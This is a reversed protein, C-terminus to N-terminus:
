INFRVVPLPERLRVDSESIDLVAVYCNAPNALYRFADDSIGLFAKAVIRLAFGHMLMIVCGPYDAQAGEARLEAVFREINQVFLPMDDGGPFQFYLVGVEYRQREIEQINERSTNGWDLNRIRAETVVDFETDPFHALFAGLTEVARNSPSVFVKIRSYRVLQPRIREVMASVQGTGIDTLSIQDDSLENRINPNVDEGSEAHRILFVQRLM